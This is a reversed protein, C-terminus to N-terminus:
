STMCMYMDHAPATQPRRHIVGRPLLNLAGRGVSGGGRLASSKHKDDDALSGAARQAVPPGNGPIAVPCLVADYSTVRKPMWSLM